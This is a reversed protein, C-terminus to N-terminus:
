CTINFNAGTGCFRPSGAGGVTIPSFAISGNIGLAGPGNHTVGSIEGGIISTVVSNNIIVNAGFICGICKTVAVRGGPNGGDDVAFAASAFPGSFDTNIFQNEMPTTSSTYPLSILAGFDQASTSDFKCDTFFNSGRSFLNASSTTTAAAAAYVHYHRGDVGHTDLARYGGLIWINAFIVPTNDDVFVCSQAASTSQSCQVYLDRMGNYANSGGVFSIATHDSGSDTQICSGAGSGNFGMGTGVLTISPYVTLGTVNFCGGTHPFFILGGGLSNHMFDIQCQIATQDAATSSNGVAATCGNAGSMVDIWPRGSGFFVHGFFKQIGPWINNANLLPVTAGATGITAFAATGFAVGSSKTVTIVGTTPVLTADGSMTYGGFSGANNFQTQGSTGGPTSGSGSVSTCQPDQTPATWVLAQGAACPGGVKWGVSGPGGGIPMSHNAIDQAIAWTGITALLLGFGLLKKM